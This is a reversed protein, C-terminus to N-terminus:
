RAKCAVIKARTNTRDERGRIRLAMADVGEPQTTCVPLPAFKQEQQPKIRRAEVSEVTM